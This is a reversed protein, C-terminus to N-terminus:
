RFASNLVSALRVGARAIRKRIIRIGERREAADIVHDDAHRYVIDRSIDHGELTWDIFSGRAVARENQSSLWDEAHRALTTDTEQSLAILRRDWVQHLNVTEGNLTVNVLNGGEDHDREASHLPQHIDGVIHVIFKLAERRELEPRSTDRLVASLRELAAVSCDGKEPDIQCDRARDFRRANVPVDTFHWNFTAPHTTGRVEDAWTAVDVITEPGILAQVAARAKDSLRADAVRAVARHGDTGWAWLDTATLLILVLTVTARSRSPM